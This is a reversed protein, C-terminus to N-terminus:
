SQWVEELAFIALRSDFVGNQETVDIGRVIVPLYKKLTGSANPFTEFVESAYQHVLYKNADGIRNNLKSFAKLIAGNATTVECTVMILGKDAEGTSKGVLGSGSAFYVSHGKRSNGEDNFTLAHRFQIVIPCFIYQTGQSLSDLDIEAPNNGSIAGGQEETIYFGVTSNNKIKNVMDKCRSAM